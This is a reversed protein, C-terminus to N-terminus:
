LASFACGALLAGLAISPWCRRFAGRAVCSVGFALLALMVVAFSLRDM